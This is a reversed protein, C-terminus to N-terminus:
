RELHTLEPAVRRLHRAMRRDEGDIHKVLWDTLFDLVADTVVEPNSEFDRRLQSVRARLDDHIAKHGELEAYGTRHMHAEETAFHTEVYDALFGLLGPIEAEAQNNHLAVFIKELQVFLHHHQRDILPVGTEWDPNWLMM